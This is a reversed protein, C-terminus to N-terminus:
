VEATFVREAHFSSRALPHSEVSAFGMSLAQEKLSQFAEPTWYRVVPLHERSPALYQGITLTDVGANRLDNLVALVETEEEGLGLMIGSKIRLPADAHTAARSLLQLSGPYSAAPRVLPYLRPVTEVNHNLVEPAARLVQRLPEEAGRFDPILLEIRTARPHEQERIAAVCAAFHGAGGDPLDDRTVSTIVVHRLGLATVAEALRRPEDPDPPAPRGTPVDCFGCSRTCLAGLILFAANGAHWCDGINPCRASQCVTELRLRRTLAQLRLYEPSGPAKVKLWRPKPTAM